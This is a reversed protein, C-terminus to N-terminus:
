DDGATQWALGFRVYFSVPVFLVGLGVLVKTYLWFLKSAGPSGRFTWAEGSFNFAWNTAVYHGVLGWTLACFVGWRISRRLQKVTPEDLEDRPPYVLWVALWLAALGGWAVLTGWPLGRSAIAVRTLLPSGTVLLWASWVVVLACVLVAAQLPRPMAHDLFTRM